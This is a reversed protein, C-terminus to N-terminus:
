SYNVWRLLTQQKRESCTIGLLYDFTQTVQIKSCIREFTHNSLYCSQGLVIAWSGFFRNFSLVLVYQMEMREM